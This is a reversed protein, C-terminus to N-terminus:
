NNRVTNGEEEREGKNERSSERTEWEWVDM